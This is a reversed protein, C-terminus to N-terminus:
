PKKHSLLRLVAAALGILTLGNLIYDNPRCPSPPYTTSCELRSWFIATIICFVFITPISYTKTFKDLPRPNTPALVGICTLATGFITLGASVNPIWFAIQKAVWEGPHFYEAYGIFFLLVGAMGFFNGFYYGTGLGFVVLEERLRSFMKKFDVTMRM